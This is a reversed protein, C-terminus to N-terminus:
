RPLRFSLGAGMFWDDAHDNLGVGASMDLQVNDSALYTFGSDFVHAPSNPGGLPIAGALEIFAGWRDGFGAGGSVSYLGTAHTHQEGDAEDLTVATVGANWGLGFRDSLSHAGALRLQPDIADSRFARKGTPLSADVLLALQPEFGDKERLKVKVGLATSGSGSEDTTVGNAERSENLYGVWDFRLEVKDDLGVRVLTGPFAATELVEGDLDIRAFGYGIEVQVAGRTVVEPSETLDPRDTVLPEAGGPETARVTGAFLAAVVAV